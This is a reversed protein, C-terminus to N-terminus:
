PLSNGAQKESEKGGVAANATGRQNLNRAERNTLATEVRQPGQRALEAANAPFREEGGGKHSAAIREAPQALADLRWELLGKGIPTVVATQAVQDMQQFVLLNTGRRTDQPAHQGLHDLLELSSDRFAHDRDNGDRQMRALLGLASEILRLQDGANRQLLQRARLPEM